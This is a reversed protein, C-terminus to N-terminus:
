CPLASQAAANARAEATAQLLRMRAAPHPALLLLAPAHKCCLERMKAGLAGLPWCFNYSGRAFTRTVSAARTSAETGGEQWIPPTVDLAMPTGDDGVHYKERNVITDVHCSGCLTHLLLPDISTYEPPPNGGPREGPPLDAARTAFYRGCKVCCSQLTTRTVGNECTVKVERLPPIPAASADAPNGYAALTAPDTSLEGAATRVAAPPRPWCARGAPTEQWLLLEQLIRERLAALRPTDAAASSRLDLLAAVLHLAEEEEEDEDDVEEDEDEEDEDDDDEEEDEEEDDSSDEQLQACAVLQQRLAEADEGRSLVDAPPVFIGCPPVHLSSSMLRAVTVPNMLGMGRAAAAASTTVGHADFRTRPSSLSEDLALAPRVFVGPFAGLAAALQRFVCAAEHAGMACRALQMGCGAWRCAVVHLRCASNLHEQLGDLAGTWDCSASGAGALAAAHTCRVTLSNLHANVARNPVLTAVSLTESPDLPCRLRRLLAREICARCFSRASNADGCVGAGCGDASLSALRVCCARIRGACVLCRPAARRHGQQCSTADCVVDHCIACEYGDVKPVSGAVVFQTRDYGMAVAQCLVCLLARRSRADPLLPPMM